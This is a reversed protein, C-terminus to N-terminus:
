GHDKGDKDPKLVFADAFGRVRDMPRSFIFSIVSVRRAAYTTALEAAAQVDDSQFPSFRFAEGPVGDQLLLGGTKLEALRRAASAETIRLELAVEPAKWARDTRARLLLLVELKEISDIHTTLFRQVRPSLGADTM